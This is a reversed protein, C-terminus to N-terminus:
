PHIYPYPSTGSLLHESLTWFTVLFPWKQVKKPWKKSRRKSGKKTTGTYKSQWVPCIWCTGSFLPDLFHGLFPWFHCKKPWKKSRLIRRKATRNPGFFPTWFSGKQTMKPGSKSGRKSGFRGLHGKPPTWFMVGFHDIKPPRPPRGGFDTLFRIKVFDWFDLKKVIAPVVKSILLRVIRPLFSLFFTCFLSM